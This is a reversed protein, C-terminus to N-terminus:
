WTVSRPCAAVLEVLGAYDIPVVHDHLTRESLGRRALDPALVHHAADGALPSATALVALVGEELWVIVDDPGILPLREDTLAGPRSILHLTKM